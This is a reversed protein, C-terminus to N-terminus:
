RFRMTTATLLDSWHVSATEWCVIMRITRFISISMALNSTKSRRETFVASFGYVVESYQSPTTDNKGPDLETIDFGTNSLGTITHGQGDFIGQFVAVAGKEPNDKIVNRDTVGIPVWAWGSIDIDATLAVTMGNYTTGNNVSDRFLALEKYSDISLVYGEAPNEDGNAKGNGNKIYGGQNTVEAQSQPDIELIYGKNVVSAASSDVKINQVIGREEIVVNANTATGAVILTDVSGNEHYSHDAIRNITVTGARSYNTVTAEPSDIEM